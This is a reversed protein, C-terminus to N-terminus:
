RHPLQPRHAFFYMFKKNWECCNSKSYTDVYTYKSFKFNCKLSKVCLFDLFLLFPKDQNWDHVQQLVFDTIKM